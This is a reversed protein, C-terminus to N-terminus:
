QTKQMGPPQKPNRGGVTDHINDVDNALGTGVLDYPVHHSFGQSPPGKIIFGM